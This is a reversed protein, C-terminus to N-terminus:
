PFYFYLNSFLFYLMSFLFYLMSCLPYFFLPYFISYLYFLFVSPLFIYSKRTQTKATFNLLISFLVSLLLLGISFFSSFKCNVLRISKDSNCAPTTAIRLSSCLTIIPCFFMISINIAETKAFPCEKISPTGPTALVIVALSM